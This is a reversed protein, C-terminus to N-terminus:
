GIWTGSFDYVFFLTSTLYDGGSVVVNNTTATAAANDITWVGATLDFVVRKGVLQNVEVLTDATSATKAKAAYIVGPTPIFVDVSGDLAVTDTSVNKAVGTFVQSSTGDGDVMIATYFGTSAIQAGTKTPEGQNITGVAGAAVQMTVILPNPNTTRLTIDGAAM